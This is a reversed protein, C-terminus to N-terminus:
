CGGRELDYRYRSRQAVQFDHEPSVNRDRRAEPVHGRVCQLNKPAGQGRLTADAFVITQFIPVAGRNEQPLIPASDRIKRQAFRPPAPDFFTWRACPAHNGLERLLFANLCPDRKTDYKRMFALEKKFSVREPAKIENVYSTRKCINGWM